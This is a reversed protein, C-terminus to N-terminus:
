GAILVSTAKIVAKAKMGPVLGLESVAANSITASIKNGKDTTLTVISNVAGKDIASIEGSLQNRASIKLEGLAIMVETAKIVAAAQKGPVLGLERVAALSITATIREGSDARLAVLANVAGEQVSEVKGKIQNRASIIM